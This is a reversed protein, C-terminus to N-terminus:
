IPESVLYKTNSGGSYQYCQAGIMQFFITKVAGPLLSQHNSAVASKTGLCKRFIWKSRVFTRSTPVKLSFEFCSILQRAPCFHRPFSRHSLNFLIFHTDSIQVNCSKSNDFIPRNAFPGSKSHYKFDPLMVM